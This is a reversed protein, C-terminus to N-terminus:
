QGFFIRRVLVSSRLSVIPECCNNITIPSVNNIGIASYLVM